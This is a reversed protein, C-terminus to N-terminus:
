HSLKDKILLAAVSGTLFSIVATRWAFKPPNALVDIDYRCYALERKCVVIAEKQEQSLNPVLNVEASSTESRM